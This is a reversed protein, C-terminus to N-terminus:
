MSERKGDVFFERMDICSQKFCGPCRLELERTQNAGERALHDTVLDALARAFVSSGNLAEARKVGKMGLEHVADHVYEMDLEFLTEIHDSTFAVPVLLLNDRGQKHYKEIVDM